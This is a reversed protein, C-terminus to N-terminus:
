NEMFSTDEQVNPSPPTGFVSRLFNLSNSSHNDMMATQNSAVEALSTTASALESVAGAIAATSAAMSEQLDRFMNEMNPAGIPSPASVSTADVSRDNPAVCGAHRKASSQGLVGLAERSSRKSPTIDENQTAESSPSPAEKTQSSPCPPPKAQSFRHATEM